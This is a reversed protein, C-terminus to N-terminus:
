DSAADCAHTRWLWLFDIQETSVSEYLTEGDETTEDSLDFSVTAREVM